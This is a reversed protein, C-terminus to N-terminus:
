EEELLQEDLIQHARDILMLLVGRKQAPHHHSWSNLYWDTHTSKRYVMRGLSGGEKCKIFTNLFPLQGKEEMKVTFQISEYFGHLHLVFSDLAEKGHPWILETDDM